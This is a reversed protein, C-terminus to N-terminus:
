SARNAPPGAAARVTEEAADVPDGLGASAWGDLVQGARRGVDLLDDDAPTIEEVIHSGVGPARVSGLGGAPLPGLEIGSRAAGTAAGVLERLAPEADVAEMEDAVPELARLLQFADDGTRIPGPPLMPVSAGAEGLAAATWDRVRTLLECARYREEGADGPAVSLAHVQRRQDPDLAEAAVALFRDLVGPGPQAPTTQRM